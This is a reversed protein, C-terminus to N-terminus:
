IHICTKSKILNIIVFNTKKKCDKEKHKYKIETCVSYLMAYYMNDERKTCVCSKKKIKIWICSIAIEIELKGRRRM